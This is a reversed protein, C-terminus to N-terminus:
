QSFKLRSLGAFHEELERDVYDWYQRNNELFNRFDDETEVVFGDVGLTTLEECRADIEQEPTDLICEWYRM